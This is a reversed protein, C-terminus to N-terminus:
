RADAEDRQQGGIAAATAAIFAGILMSLVMSFGFMVASKRAAEAAQTVEAKAANVAAIGEDVREQAEALTLGRSSALNVLYTRDDANFDGDTRINAVLARKAADRSERPLPTATANGRLMADLAYGYRNEFGEGRLSEAQMHAASKGIDAAGQVAALAGSTFVAAMIITAVAWSVFGHATDRFFNEDNSVIRCCTRLRGTLYGGIAASLWQIAILWAAMKATFTLATEDGTEPSFVGLGTATGLLSLVVTVAVAAVAGAIIAEWSVATGFTFFSPNDTATKNVPTM